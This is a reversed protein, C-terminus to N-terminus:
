MGPFDRWGRIVILPKCKTCAPDGTDNPWKWALCLNNKLIYFLLLLFTFLRVGQTKFVAGHKM